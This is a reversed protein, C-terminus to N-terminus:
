KQVLRRRNTPRDRKKGGWRITVQWKDQYLIHIRPDNEKVSVIKAIIGNSRIESLVKHGVKRWGYETFYFDQKKWWAFGRGPCPLGAEVMANGSLIQASYGGPNEIRRYM